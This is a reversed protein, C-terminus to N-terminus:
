SGDRPHGRLEHMLRAHSHRAERDALGRERGARWLEHVVDVLVAGALLVLVLQLV